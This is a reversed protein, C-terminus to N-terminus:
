DIPDTENGNGPVGAQFRPYNVRVDAGSLSIGNPVDLAVTVTRGNAVRSPNPDCTQGPYAALALNRGTARASDAVCTPLPTCAGLATPQAPSPSGCKTTIKTSESTIKNTVPTTQALCDPSIHSLEGFDSAVAGTADKAKQCKVAESLMTTAI